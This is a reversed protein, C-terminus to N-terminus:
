SPVEAGAGLVELLSARLELLRDASAPEEPSQSPEIYFTDVAVRRETSIRAFTINFGHESITRALKYLLGLEDNAEVEIITRKLSLEHYVDVRVPIPAPLTPDGGAYAPRKRKEAQATIEPLLNKNHILAEAIWHQFAQLAGADRVPGGNPESVYFTDVTIHDARTLAKSSVISLGALTFAGALKYFLGARDWTVVHVVTLGLNLDDAWEVVPVLSGVSDATSINHLLRHIMQLHLLIEKESHYSFYRDPLLNFHAEVEEKSLNEAKALIQAPSIMPVVSAAVGPAELRELTLTLLRTHLMDKYSNWLDRSTGRADCFTLVYLYRLLEPDRVLRAFRDITQPDDLDHRQWIRAMELHHGILFLIKEHVKEVVQLRHLLPQAIRAGAAAHHEIGHAKGIDHLLLILYLLGPLETDELAERYKRTLAPNEGTFIQDLERITNLVHEDATYRHYYEHQVLCHLGAWEPMFRSLVGTTNMLHLTPYVEGKSQLISRFARNAEESAIVHADIRDLNEEILRQLDFDLEFGRSQMHRFVRILRVPDQQFVQASEASLVKGFAVFGDFREPKGVRRSEIVSQFSVSSTANLSLRKELYSSLHYIRYTARYYDRMFAEMRSFVSRQRYGLAWAIKPQKELALLDTPRRSQLHLENRVRLLFDYAALLEDHEHPRILDLRVLDALDRGGYQLRAMWLINQFDRLGGVGNKIDPEQLFVTDGQKARRRTQDALRERLYNLVNDKSIFREYAAAFEQYLPVSGCVRRAELMANKSQEDGAAEALAEKVTRTSHGVKLGLDWLTYLVTDNFQQQMGAFAAERPRAPYLFMIDVDSFPCLEARGYGGLALLAVEPCQGGHAERVRHCALDYLRELLVDMAISRCNVIRLGSGGTRHYRNIWENSRALYERFRGLQEAPDTPPDPLHLRAALQTMKERFKEPNPLTQAVIAGSHAAARRNCPPRISPRIGLIGQM